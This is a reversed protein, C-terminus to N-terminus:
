RRRWGVNRLRKAYDAPSGADLCALAAFPAPAPSSGSRACPSPAAGRTKMVVPGHRTFKLVVEQDAAGKVAIAERIVRM